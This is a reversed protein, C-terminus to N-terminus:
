CVRFTGPASPTLSRARRHAARPRATTLVARLSPHVQRPALHGVSSCLSWSPPACIPVTPRHGHLSAAPLFRTAAYGNFRRRGFISPASSRSSAGSACRPLGAPARRLLAHAPADPPARRASRPLLLVDRLTTLRTRGKSRLLHRSGSFPPRTSLRATCPRTAVRRRRGRARCALSTSRARTGLTAGLRVRPSPDFPRRASTGFRM